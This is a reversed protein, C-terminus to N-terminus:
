PDGCRIRAPPNKGPDSDDVEFWYHYIQGDVLGCAAAPLDWLDSFGAVPQLTFQREGTLTPPNGPQFQGIILRPVTATKQPRWLVFHTTRRTLLDVDLMPCGFRYSIPVAYVAPPGRAIMFGQRLRRRCRTGSPFPREKG